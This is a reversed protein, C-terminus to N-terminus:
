EIERDNLDQLLLGGSAVKLNYVEHIFLYLFALSIILVVIGSVSTTIRVKNASIEVKNSEQIGTRISKMLQMGSLTLGSFVVVVVVWLLINSAFRQWKLADDVHQFLMIEYNQRAIASQLYKESLEPPYDEISTRSTNIIEIFFDENFPTYQASEEADGAANIEEAAASPGYVSICLILSIVPLSFWMLRSYYRMFINTNYLNTM